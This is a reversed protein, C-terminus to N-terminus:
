EEKKKLIDGLTGIRKTGRKFLDGLFDLNRPKEEPEQPKEIKPVKGSFQTFAGAADDAHIVAMELTEVLKSTEIELKPVLVLFSTKKTASYKGFREMLENRTFPEDSFSVDVTITTDENDEAVIDFDYEIGSPDKLIPPIIITYGNEELVKRFQSLHLLGRSIEERVEQSLTYIYVDEFKADEFTFEHGCKRCRHGMSLTELRRNCVNCQSWTGTIRYSGPTLTQRCRPCALEGDEVTFNSRSDIYGCTLHTLLTDRNIDNSGDHPCTYNTSINPSSCKPCRVSKDYREKELIGLDSLRALTRVAEEPSEELIEEAAPYWYGHELDYTPELSSSTDNLSVVLKEIKPERITEEWVEVDTKAEIENLEQVM